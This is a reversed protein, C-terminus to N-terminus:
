PRNRMEHRLNEVIEADKDSFLTLRTGSPLRVIEPAYGFLSTRKAIEVAEEETLTCSQQAKVYSTMTGEKAKISEMM